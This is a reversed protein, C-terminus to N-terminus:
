NTSGPGSTKTLQCRSSVIHRPLSKKLGGNTVQERGQNKPRLLGRYQRQLVDIDEKM